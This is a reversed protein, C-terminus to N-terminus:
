FLIQSRYSLFNVWIISLEQSAEQSNGTAELAHCSAGVMWLRGAFRKYKQESQMNIWLLKVHSSYTLYFTQYM